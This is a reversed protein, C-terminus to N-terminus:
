TQERGNKLEEAKHALAKTYRDIFQFAAMLQLPEESPTGGHPMM